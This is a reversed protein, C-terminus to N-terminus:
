NKKFFLKVVILCIFFAVIQGSLYFYLDNEISILSFILNLYYLFYLHSKNPIVYQIISLFLGLIGFTIVIFIWGGEFYSWGFTTPTISNDKNRMVLNNFKIGTDSTPKSPVIGRPVFSIPLYIYRNLNKYEVWKDENEVSYVFYQFMSIRDLGSSHEKTKKKSDTFFVKEVVDSMIQLRSANFDKSLEERFNTVIPFVFFVIPLSILFLKKPFPKGSMLYSMLIIILFILIGGKQGSYLNVIIFIISYAKFSTLLLKNKSKDFFIILCYIYTILSGIVFLFQFLFSFAGELHNVQGSIFSESGYGILGINILYIQILLYIFSIVVFVKNNRLKFRPVNILAIRSKLLKKSNFRLRFLFDVVDLTLVGLILVFLSLVIYDENIYYAFWLSNSPNNLDDAIRLYHFDLYVFTSLKFWDIFKPIKYHYINSLIKGLTIYMLIGALILEFLISDRDVEFYLYTARFLFITWIIVLILYYQTRSFIIKM